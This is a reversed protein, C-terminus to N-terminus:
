RAALTIATLSHEPFTYIFTNGAVPLTSTVPHVRDPSAADNEELVSDATLTHVTAQAAPHFDQLQISAPISRQWDRNVVFISLDGTRSNRTALVDLWPVDAIEPMRRVGQHVDYHRVSTTTAVLKDGAFNSYLWLTWYHPTVFVRGERKHIGAFEVLGTMDSVPVFDANELLMNMWGAAVLAGGLNSWRPFPSHRPATFLWETYALKVRGKTSSSADIQDKEAKLARGVGVPVAFDAEWAANLGGAKNVLDNMGTVFHTTLYRLKPGQRSILAANWDRYFDIDGGTGFVMTPPTILERIADFVEGYRDANSEPTQWGVDDRNWLENGLEWAEVTYAAPHGNRARLAGMPTSEPGTCYEVWDKAEQKSGSGLNLCIQPEAGTLQCLTMLEDTGFLNYQPIGWAENLTTPRLDVPGVGDRWHYSSTFNGGYRMLPSHLAKAAAVVEPDFGSVADEPYLLIEDLGLRVNGEVSVVFDVPELPAVEGPRLVLNFALKQWGGAAKTHLKERALIAGSQDRRRFSVVLSPVMGGTSVFLTGRYRLERQAPLYVSQRIGTERGEMGMLYLYRNSNAAGGFRPEYRRGEKANLPLWPLPIGIFSSYEFDRTAFRERLVELSANYGELSPNDLLEASVGGFISWGIDELFTGYETRPISFAVKAGAKVEISAQAADTRVYSSVSQALLPAQLFVIILCLPTAIRM